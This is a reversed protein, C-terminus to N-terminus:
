GYSGHKFFPLTLRQRRIGSKGSFRFSPFKWHIGAIHARFILPVSVPDDVAFSKPPEHM